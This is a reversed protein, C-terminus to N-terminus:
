FFDNSVDDFFDDLKDVFVYLFDFFFAKNPLITLFADSFMMLFITFFVDLFDVYDYSFDFKRNIGM